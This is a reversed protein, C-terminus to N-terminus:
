IQGYPKKVLMGFVIWGLNNGLFVGDQMLSSRITEDQKDVLRVDHQNMGMSLQRDGAGLTLLRVFENFDIHEGPTLYGRQMLYPPISRGIAPQYLIFLSRILESIEGHGWASAFAEGIFTPSGSKEKVNIFKQLIEKLPLGNRIIHQLIRSGYFKQLGLLGKKIKKRNSFDEIGIKQLLLKIHCIENTDKHFQTYLYRLNKLGIGQLTQELAFPNLSAYSALKKAIYSFVDKETQYFVGDMFDFRPLMGISLYRQLIEVLMKQIYPDFFNLRDTGFDRFPKSDEQHVFQAHASDFYLQRGEKDKVKDLNTGKAATHFVVWDFFTNIKNKNLHEVLEKLQDWTALRKDLDGPSKTLYTDTLKYYELEETSLASTQLNFMMATYGRDKLYRVVEDMQSLLMGVLTKREESILQWDSKKFVKRLMLEHFLLILHSDWILNSPNNPTKVMTSSLPKMPLFSRNYNKPDTSFGTIDPIQLKKGDIMMIEFYYAAGPQVSKLELTWIFDVENYIMPRSIKKSFVLGTQELVVHPNDGFEPPLYLRFIVDLRGPKKSKEVTTLIDAHASLCFFFFSTILIKSMIENRIALCDFFVM